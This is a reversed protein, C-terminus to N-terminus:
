THLWHVCKTFRTSEQKV